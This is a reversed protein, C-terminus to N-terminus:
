KLRLTTFIRSKRCSIWTCLNAWFRGVKAMYTNNPSQLPIRRPNDLRPYTASFTKNPRYIYPGIRTQPIASLFVRLGYVNCQNTELAFPMRHHMGLPYKNAIPRSPHSSPHYIQWKPCKTAVPSAYGTRFPVVFDASFLENKALFGPKANPLSSM